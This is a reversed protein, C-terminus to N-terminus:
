ASRSGVQVADDWLWSSSREKSLAVLISRYGDRFVPDPLTMAQEALFVPFFVPNVSPPLGLDSLRELIWRRVLEPFWGEGFFAYGFGALNRWTGHRRWRSASAEYGPHGPVDGAGHARDLYFGYSLPLKYVDRFPLGARRSLEWDVVGSVRGAQRLLNGMWYDGHVGALPMSLGLLASARERVDDFLAEEGRSWGIESRYRALVTEVGRELAEADLPREAERTELQFSGLWQGAAEFDNAVRAPDATHGPTHYDTIMPRGAAPSMILALRGAVRRLALPTPAAARVVPSPLSRLETLADHEARIAREAEEDRAIKVAAAPAGDEGFLILTVKASPSRDSGAVIAGTVRPAGPRLRPWESVLLDRLDGM